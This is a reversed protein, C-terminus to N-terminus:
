RPHYEGAAEPGEAQTYADVIVASRQEDDLDKWRDWIVRVHRLKTSPIKEELILPQLNASSETFEQVLKKLLAEHKRAATRFDALVVQSRRLSANMSNEVARGDAVM